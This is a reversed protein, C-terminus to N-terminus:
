PLLVCRGPRHGRALIREGKQFGGGVPPRGSNRVLRELDADDEGVEDRGRGGRWTEERKFALHGGERVGHIPHVLREARIRDVEAAHEAPRLVGRHPDGERVDRVLLGFRDVLQLAVPPSRNISEGRRVVWSEGNKEDFGKSRPRPTTLY